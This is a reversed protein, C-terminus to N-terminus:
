RCVARCNAMSDKQLRVALRDKCVEKLYAVVLKGSSNTRLVDDLELRVEEVM